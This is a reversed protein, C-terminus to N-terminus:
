KGSRLSTRQTTVGDVSSRSEVTSLSGPFGPGRSEPQGYNQARKGHRSQVYDTDQQGAGAVTASLLGDVLVRLTM